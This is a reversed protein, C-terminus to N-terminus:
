SKKKKALALMEDTDKRLGDLSAYPVEGEYSVIADFSSALAFSLVMACAAERFDGGWRFSIVFDRGGAVENVVGSDPFADRVRNYYTEVGTKAGLLVCPLFGSHSFPVLGDDVQLDYGADDIAQQWQSPSPVKNKDIFAFQENAM